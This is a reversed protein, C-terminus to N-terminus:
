FLELVLELYIQGSNNILTLHSRHRSSGLCTELKSFNVPNYIHSFNHQQLYADDTHKVGLGFRSYEM